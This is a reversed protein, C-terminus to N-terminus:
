RTHAILHCALCRIPRSSHDCVLSWGPSLTLLNAWPWQTCLPFHNGYLKGPSYLNVHSPERQVTVWTSPARCTSPAATCGPHSSTSWGRSITLPSQGPIPCYHQLVEARIIFSRLLEEGASLSALTLMHPHTPHSPIFQQSWYQRSMNLILWKQFHLSALLWLQLLVVSSM